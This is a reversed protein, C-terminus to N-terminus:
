LERPLIPVIVADVTGHLNGLKELVQRDAPVTSPLLFFNPSPLLCGCLLYCLPRLKTMQSNERAKGDSERRIGTRTGSKLGVRDKISSVSFAFHKTRLLKFSGKIFDPVLLFCWIFRWCAWLFTICTSVSPATRHIVPTNYHGILPSLPAFFFSGL